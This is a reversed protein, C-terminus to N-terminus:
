NTLVGPLYRRFSAQKWWWMEVTMRQSGQFFGSRARPRDRGSAVAEPAKKLLGM